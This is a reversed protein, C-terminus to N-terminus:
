GTGYRLQTLVRVVEGHNLLHQDSKYHNQGPITECECTKCETNCGHMKDYGRRRAGLMAQLRKIKKDVLMSKNLLRVLHSM